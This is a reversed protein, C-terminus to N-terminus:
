GGVVRCSIGNFLIMNPRRSVQGLDVVFCTAHRFRLVDGKEIPKSAEVQFVFQGALVPEVNFASVHGIAIGERYLTDPDLPVEIPPRPYLGFYVVALFSMVVFLATTNEITWLRKSGRVVCRISVDIYRHLARVMMPVGTARLVGVVGERLSRKEIAKVSM